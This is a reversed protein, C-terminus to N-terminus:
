TLQTIYTLIHNCQAPSAIIRKSNTTMTIKMTITM